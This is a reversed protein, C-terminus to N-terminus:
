FYGHYILGSNQETGGNDGLMTAVAAVNNEIAQFFNWGLANARHHAHLQVYIGPNLAVGITGSPANTVNFGLGIYENGGSVIGTAVYKAEFFDNPWGQIFSVRNGNSSDVAHWVGGTVGWSNTSDGIMGSIAVRNYMNWVSILAATGGSGVGGFHFDISGSSNTRITGVWTGCRAAPGNTIANKNVLIGNIRELDNETASSRVFDTNWAGGRTLYKTGTTTDKWVFLDHNKSNGAASPGANGSSSNALVNTLETFEELYFKSLTADYLPILNGCHQTYYITTGGTVNAAIVPTATALALRGQPKVIALPLYKNQVRDVIALPQEWVGGSDLGDYFYETNFNTAPYNKKNWRGYQLFATRSTDLANKVVIELLEAPTGVYISLPLDNPGWNVAANSNTSYIVNRALTSPSGETFIGGLNYEAQTEDANRVIYFPTDNTDFVDSFPRYGENEGSLVYTITGQTQSTELIDNGFIKETTM